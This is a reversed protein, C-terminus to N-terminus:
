GKTSTGEFPNDILNTGEVIALESPEFKLGSRRFFCHAASLVWNEHIISGGCGAKFSGNSLKFYIAVQWPWAGAAAETGGVVKRDDTVRSPTAPDAESRLPATKQAKALHPPWVIWLLTLAALIGRLLVM